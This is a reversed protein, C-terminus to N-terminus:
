EIDLGAKQYEEGLVRLATARRKRVELDVETDGLTKDCVERLVAEVELKSGRWLAEMGKSAAEEELKAKLEQEEPSLQINVADEADEGNETPTRREMEQLKSFSSQLDIATKVTGVTESIIHAKERFGNAFRSGYGWARKFLHGESEFIAMWQDSRLCYTYGIAHLLEIGYSEEKLSNIEIQCKTRFTNLAETSLHEITVGVPASDSTPFTSTYLNLKEILHNVLEQVRSNRLELREETTLPKENGKSFMADKFDRAISIEGIISVFKEGGFQQKFFQEPDVFASDATM